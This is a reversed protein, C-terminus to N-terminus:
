REINTDRLPLEIGLEINPIMDSLHREYISRFRFELRNRPRNQTRKHVPVMREPIERYNVAQFVVARCDDSSNMVAQRVPQGSHIQEVRDHIRRWFHPWQM